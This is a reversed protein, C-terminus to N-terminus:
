SHRDFSFNSIIGDVERDTAFKLEAQIDVPNDFFSLVRITYPRQLYTRVREAITGRHWEV